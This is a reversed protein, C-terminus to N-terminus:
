RIEEGHKTNLRREPTRPDLPVFVLGAKLAALIGTVVHSVDEALIAVRAHRPAGSTLLFNALRNSRAELSEYTITGEGTDIAPRDGHEAATRSVWDHISERTM